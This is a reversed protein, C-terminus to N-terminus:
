QRAEQGKTQSASHPIFDRVQIGEQLLMFFTLVLDTPTAGQYAVYERVQQRTISGNSRGIRILHQIRAEVSAV